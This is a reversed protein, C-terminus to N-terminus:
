CAILDALSSLKLILGMMMTLRSLAVNCTCWRGKIKAIHAELEVKISAIANLTSGLDLEWM